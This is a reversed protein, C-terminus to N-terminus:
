SNPFPAVPPTFAGTYRAVGNTIRWDDMWGNLFQTFGSSNIAGFVLPQNSNTPGFPTTNSGILSGAAFVRYANGSRTVAVHYWTNIVPAWAGQAIEPSNPNSGGSFPHIQFTLLDGTTRRFFWSRMNTTNEYHSCFVHNGTLAAFRVWGEITFDAGPTWENSDPVTIYDGTGDLLLSASGFKQQATDLQANGVCTVTHSKEDTVTTSADSGDFHSLFVVSAFHPDTLALSQGNVASLTPLGIGDIDSLTSLLSGNATNVSM